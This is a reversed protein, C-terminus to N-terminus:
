NDGEDYDWPWPDKLWSWGEGKDGVNIPGYKIEYEGRLANYKEEHNKLSTMAANDRPHTDLYMHMEWMSFAAADLKRLLMMKDDM